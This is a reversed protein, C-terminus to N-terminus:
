YSLVSLNWITYNNWKPNREISDVRLTTGAPFMMEDEDNILQLNAVRTSEPFAGPFEEPPAACLMKFIEEQYNYVFPADNICFINFTGYFNYSAFNRAVNFDKSFSMVRDFEIVAGVCMTSELYKMTKKSIGRYLKDPVVSTMNKRIIKNLTEQISDPKNEMCQWLTSQELDSYVEDIEIQTNERFDDCKANNIFEALKHSPYLM